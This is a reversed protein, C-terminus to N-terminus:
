AVEVIIGFNMHRGRVGKIGKESPDQVDIGHRCTGRRVSSETRHRFHSIQQWHGYGTTIHRSICDANLIGQM